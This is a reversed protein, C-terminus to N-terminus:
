RFLPPIAFPNSLNIGFPNLSNLKHIYKHEKVELIRPSCVELLSVKYFKSFDSKNKYGHLYLHSGLAFDDNDDNPNINPSVKNDVIQYFHRRHEGIRTNLQRTSRGIYHQHCIDCVVLYVINYSACSGEATRVLTKNSRYIVYFLFFVM